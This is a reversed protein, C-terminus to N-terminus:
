DEEETSYNDVSNSFKSASRLRKGSRFNSVEAAGMAFVAALKDKKYNWARDQRIGLSGGYNVADLGDALFMIEWGYKDQQEEVMKRVMDFTYEKSHNEQGDTMIVAIVKNPREEEPTEHLEKGLKVFSTGIADLLSTMGDPTYDEYKKIESLDKRWLKTEIEHNFEVLSIKAEAPNEHQKQLFETIGDCVEKKKGTMSGSRDIIMLIETAEKM